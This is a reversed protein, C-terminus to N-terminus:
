IGFNPIIHSCWTPQISSIWCCNSFSFNPCWLGEYHAVKKWTYPLSQECLWLRWMNFFFSSFPNSHCRRLTGCEGGEERQLYDVCTNINSQGIKNFILRNNVMWIMVLTWLGFWLKFDQDCNPCNFVLWQSIVEKVKCKTQWMLKVKNWTPNFKPWLNM